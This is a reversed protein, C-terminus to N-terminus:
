QQEMLKLSFFKIFPPFITFEVRTEVNQCLPINGRVIIYAYNYNCLNTRLVETSSIIDNRVGYNSNSQYKVINCKWTVFRSNIPETMLNLM